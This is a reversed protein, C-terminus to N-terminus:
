SRQRSVRSSRKTSENEHDETKTPHIANPDNALRLHANIQALELADLIEQDTNRPPSNYM